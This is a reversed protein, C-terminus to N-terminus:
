AYSLCMSEYSYDLGDTQDPRSFGSYRTRPHSKSRYDTGESGLHRTHQRCIPVDYTTGPCLYSSTTATLVPRFVLAFADEAFKAKDLHIVGGIFGKKIGEM